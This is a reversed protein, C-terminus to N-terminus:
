RRKYICPKLEYKSIKKPKRTSKVFDFLVFMTNSEDKSVFDFGLSKLSTIFKDISSFRSKVEAIKLQGRVVSLLILECFKFM